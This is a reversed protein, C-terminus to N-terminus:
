ANENRRLIENKLKLALQVSTRESICRISFAFNTRLSLFYKKTGVKACSAGFNEFCFYFLWKACKGVIPLFPLIGKYFINSQLIQNHFESVSFSVANHIGVQSEGLLGIVGDSFISFHAEVIELFMAAAGVSRKEGRTREIFVEVFGLLLCLLLDLEDEGAQYFLAADGFFEFSRVRELPYLFHVVRFLARLFKHQILYNIM